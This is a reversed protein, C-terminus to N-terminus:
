TSVVWEIEQRRVRYIMYMIGVITIWVLPEVEFSHFTYEFFEGKFDERYVPWFWSVGRYYGTFTDVFLHLFWGVLLPFVKTRSYGLTFLGSAVFLAMFPTHTIGRHAWPYAWEFARFINDIDPIIGGLAGWWPNFKRSVAYSGFYGTLVHTVLAALGFVLLGIHSGLLQVAEQPSSIIM